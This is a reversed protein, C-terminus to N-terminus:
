MVQRLQKAADGSILGSAELRDLRKDLQVSAWVNVWTQAGVFISNAVARDQKHARVEDITVGVLKLLNDGTQTPPLKELNEPNYTARRHGGKTGMAAANDGTHFFCFKGSRLAATHL